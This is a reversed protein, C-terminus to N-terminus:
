LSQSGYVSINNRSHLSDRGLARFLAKTLKFSFSFSTTMTDLMHQKLLILM